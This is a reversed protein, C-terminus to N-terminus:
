LCHGQHSINANFSAKAIFEHGIWRPAWNCISSQGIFMWTSTELFYAFWFGALLWSSALWFGALLWGSTLWFGALLWGTALWNGALWGSLFTPFRNHTCGSLNRVIWTVIWLFSFGTQLLIRLPEPLVNRHFPIGWRQFQECYEPLVMWPQMFTSGGM